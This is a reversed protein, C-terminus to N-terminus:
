AALTSVSQLDKAELPLKALMAPVESAPHPRNILYGQINNCNMARLMRMQEITEVGEAVTTMGLKHALGLTSEVIARAERDFVMDRTFSQDIKLTDFPFKRLYSLSSYGTGFDDVSIGVGLDKLKALIHLTAETDQLLISETIEMQLRAPSIASSSIASAVSDVFTPDRLQMPSVNVAVQISRPWKMAELCAAHMVWNGIPKIAGSEEAARIFRGPLILGEVPHRWRILAEFSVVESRALDLVPQYYLEFDKSHDAAKIERELQKKERLNIDMEPKYMRCTSRGDRKACYLAVDSMRMLAETSTEFDNTVAVGVSASLEVKAGDVFVPEGLMRVVRGALDSADGDAFMSQQLIVFEDGGLRGVLDGERVSRRLRGAVTALVIDGAPHGFADNIEKFYDLDITHIAIPRRAAAVARNLEDSFHNRNALETLPDHRAMHAVRTATARQETVDDHTSVLSGDPLVRRHISITRGDLLNLEHDSDTATPLIIREYQSLEGPWVGISVQHSVIAEVAVGPACLAEPLAYMDRYRRNSTIMRGDPAFMSLGQAMNDLAAAAITAQQDARESLIRQRLLMAAAPFLTFSVALVQLQILQIREGASLGVAQAFPGLGKSTMILTVAAVTVPGVSAGILGTRITLLMALPFVVFMMPVDVSLSLYCGLALLATLALSEARAHRAIEKRLTPEFWSLFFPTFILYALSDAIAWTQFSEIFSAEGIAALGASGVAAAIMPAIVAGASFVVITRPSLFWDRAENFSRASVVIALAELADMVAVLSAGAATGGHALSASLDATAAIALLGLWKSPRSKLLFVVLIPGAPWIFAINGAQGTLGIAAYAAAFYLTFLGLCRRVPPAEIDQAFSAIVRAFAGKVTREM